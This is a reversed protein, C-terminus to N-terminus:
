QDLHGEKLEMLKQEVDIQRSLVVAARIQTLQLLAEAFEESGEIEAGEVGDTIPCDKHDLEHHYLTVLVYCDPRGPVNPHCLPEGNLSGWGSEADGCPRGCHACAPLPMRVSRFTPTIPCKKAHLFEADALIKLMKALSRIRRYPRTTLACGDAWSVSVTKM